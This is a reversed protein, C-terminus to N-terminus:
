INAVDYNAINGYSDIKKSQNLFSWFICSAYKWGLDFFFKFMFNSMFNERNHFIIIALIETLQNLNMSKILIETWFKKSYPTWPSAICVWRMLIWGEPPEIGKLEELYDGERIPLIQPNEPDSYTYLAKHTEYGEAM